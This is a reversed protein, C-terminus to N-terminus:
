RRIQRRCPRQEDGVRQREVPERVIRLAHPYGRITLTDDADDRELEKRIAGQQARQRHLLVNSTLMEAPLEDSRCQVIDPPTVKADDVQQGGRGFRKERTQSEADHRRSSTGSESSPDTSNRDAQGVVAM